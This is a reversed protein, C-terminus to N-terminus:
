ITIPNGDLDLAYNVGDIFVGAADNFESGVYEPYEDSGVIYDFGIGDFGQQLVFTIELRAADQMNGGGAIEVCLPDGPSGWSTTIGGADNPPLANTASGSTLLAGDEIGLPGATFTGSAEADGTYTVATILIGGGGVAANGLVAGDGSPTIDLAGAPASLLMATAATM